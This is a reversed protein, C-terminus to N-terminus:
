KSDPSDSFLLYRDQPLSGADLFPMAPVVVSGMQTQAHTVSADPLVVVDLAYIWTLFWRSPPSIFGRKKSSSCMFRAIWHCSRRCFGLRSTSAMPSGPAGDAPIESGSRRLQISCFPYMKTVSFRLVIGTCRISWKLMPRCTGPMNQTRGPTPM